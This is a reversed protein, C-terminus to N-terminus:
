QASWSRGERGVWCGCEYEDNIKVKKLIHIKERDFKLREQRDFLGEDYDHPRVNQAGGYTIALANSTTSGPTPVNPAVNSNRRSFPNALMRWSRMFAPCGVKDTQTPKWSRAWDDVSTGETIEVEGDNM